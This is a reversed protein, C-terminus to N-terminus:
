LAATWNLEIWEDIENVTDQNPGTTSSSTHCDMWLETQINPFQEQILECISSAIRDGDDADCETGYYSPDNSVRVEYQSYDRQVTISLTFADGADTTGDVHWSPGFAIAAADDSDMAATIAYIDPAKVTIQPRTSNSISESIANQIKTLNIM